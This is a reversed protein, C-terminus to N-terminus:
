FSLLSKFQKRVEAPLYRVYDEGCSLLTRVVKETLWIDPVFVICRPDTRVVHDVFHKNWQQLPIYEAVRYTNRIARIWRYDEQLEVPLSLIALGSQSVADDIMDPTRYSEPVYKLMSGDRKMMQACVGHSMLHEPIYPFARDCSALASACMFFDRDHAPVFQLCEGHQKVASLCMDRTRKKEPIFALAYGSQTVAAHYVRPTCLEDDLHLLANPTRSVAVICLKETQLAHPVFQIAHGTHRVALLCMRQTIRSHDIHELYFGDSRVQDEETEYMPTPEYSTSTSTSASCELIASKPTARASSSPLVRSVATCSPAITRRVFHSSSSLLMRATYRAFSYSSNM